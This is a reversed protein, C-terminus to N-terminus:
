CRSAVVLEFDTEDRMTVARGDEPHLFQVVM